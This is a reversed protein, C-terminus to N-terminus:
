DYRSLLPLTVSCYLCQTQFAEASEMDARKREGNRKGGGTSIRMQRARQWKPAREMWSLNIASRENRLGM